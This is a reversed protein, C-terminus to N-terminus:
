FQFNMGIKYAKYNNGFTYSATMGMGTFVNRKSFSRSLGIGVEDYYDIYLDSGTYRTDYGFVTVATKESLQQRVALGNKFVNNRLGYEIDYGKVDLTYDRIHGFMNLITVSTKHIDITYSSAISAMYLVGGSLSDESATAGVRVSPTLFWKKMVPIQLSAGVQAAYTVSGDLDIYSLPVDIGLAWDNKFRFTYGLPLNITTATREVGDEGKIRHSGASPSLLIFGGSQGAAAAANSAALTPNSFAIDTMQAMLSSPNGAVADYPTNAVSEKLIRTLLDNQNTKLYEKFARFSAEQSGYDFYESVGLAGIKFSLAGTAGYDLEMRIGRFDLVGNAAQASDYGYLITYLRGDEYADFIDMVSKYGKTTSNGGQSLTISFLDARTPFSYFFLYFIFSVLVFSKIKNKM